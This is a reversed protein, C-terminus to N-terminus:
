QIRSTISVAVQIVNLWMLWTCFCIHGTAISLHPSPAYYIQFASCNLRSPLWLLGTLPVLGFWDVPAQLFFPPHHVPCDCSRTVGLANLVLGLSGRLLFYLFAVSWQLISATVTFLLPFFVAFRTHCTHCHNQKFYSKVM